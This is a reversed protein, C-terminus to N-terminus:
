EWAVICAEYARIAEQENECEEYMKRTSRSSKGNVTQWDLNEFVFMNDKKYVVYERYSGREDIKTKHYKIFNSDM